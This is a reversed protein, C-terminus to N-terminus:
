KIKERFVGNVLLPLFEELITNDIKLQGKQRYLFDESSAFILDVEIYNKYNNLLGVSNSIITNIDGELQLLTNRWVNYKDIAEKVKAMDSAPLKNNNLLANLKDGHTTTLNM